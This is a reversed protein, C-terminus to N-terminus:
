GADADLLESEIYPLFARTAHAVGADEKAWVVKVSRL